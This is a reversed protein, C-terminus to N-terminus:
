AAMCVMRRSARAVSASATGIMRPETLWISMPTISLTIIPRTPVTGSAAEPQQQGHGHEHRPGVARAALVLAAFPQSV